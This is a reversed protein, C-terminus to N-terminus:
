FRTRRISIVSFILALAKDETKVAYVRLFIEFCELYGDVDDEEPKFETFKPM